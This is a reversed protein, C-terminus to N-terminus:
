PGQWPHTVHQPCRIDALDAIMSLRAPIQDGSDVIMGRQEAIVPERHPVTVEGSVGREVSPQAWEAPEGRRRQAAAVPKWGGGIMVMVLRRFGERGASIGVM